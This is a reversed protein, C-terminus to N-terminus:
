PALLGARDREQPTQEFALPFTKFAITMFPERLVGEIAGELLAFDLRFHRASDDPVWVPRLADGLSKSFLPRYNEEDRKRRDPFVVYAQVYIAGNGRCLGAFMLLGGLTKEWRKKARYGPQWSASSQFGTKNLSPPTGPWDVVSDWGDLHRRRPAVPAANKM